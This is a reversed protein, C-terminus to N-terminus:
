SDELGHIKKVMSRFEQETIQKGHIVPVFPHIERIPHISWDEAYDMDPWVVVPKRGLVYFWVAEMDLDFGRALLGAITPPVFNPDPTTWVYNVEDDCIITSMADSRRLRAVRGDM